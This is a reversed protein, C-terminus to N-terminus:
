FRFRGKTKPTPNMPTAGPKNGGEGVGPKKSVPRPQAPKGDKSKPGNKEIGSGPGSEDAAPDLQPPALTEQRRKTAAELDEPAVNELGAKERVMDLDAELAPSMYGANTLAFFSRCLIELDEPRMDLRKFCGYTEQPGFNWYILWFILDDILVKEVEVLIAAMSELFISWHQEVLALNGSDTTDLALSPLLLARLVRRDLHNLAGEYDKGIGTALEFVKIDEGKRLIIGGGGRLGEIAQLLFQGRDVPAAPAATTVQMGGPMTVTSAAPIYTPDIPSHIDNTMIAMIPGAYRELGQGYCQLVVDKLHWNKWAPQLRPNGYPEQFTEQHAYHIFKRRELVAEVGTGCGYNQIVNQVEGHDLGGELDLKLVVTEPDMTILKHLEWHAPTNKLVIETDSWGFPVGTLIQRFAKPWGGKVQELQERIFKQIRTKPHEFPGLKAVAILTILDVGAKVTEDTRLMRKYDKVGLWDPNEIYGLFQDLKSWNRAQVRTFTDVPKRPQPDTTNAM